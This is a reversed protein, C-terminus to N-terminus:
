QKVGHCKLVDLVYTKGSREFKIEGSLPVLMAPNGLFGNITMEGKKNKSM